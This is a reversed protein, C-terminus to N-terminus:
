RAIVSSIHFNGDSLARFALSNRCLLLVGSHVPRTLVQGPGNWTPPISVVAIMQTELIARDTSHITDPRGICLILVSLNCGEEGLTFSHSQM